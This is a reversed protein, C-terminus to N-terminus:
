SDEGFYMITDHHNRMSVSRLPLESMSGGTALDSKDSVYVRHIFKLGSTEAECVMMDHQQNNLCRSVQSTIIDYGSNKKLKKNQVM